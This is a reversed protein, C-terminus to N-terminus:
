AAYHAVSVCHAGLPVGHLLKSSRVAQSRKNTQRDSRQECENTAAAKFIFAPDWVDVLGVDEGVGIMMWRLDSTTSCSPLYYEAKCGHWRSISSAVCETWHPM